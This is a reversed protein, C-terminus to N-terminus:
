SSQVDQHPTNEFYSSGLHEKARYMAQDASNILAAPSEAHLPYYSVGISVGIELSQEKFWIPEVLKAIIDEVKAPVAEFSELLDLCVVFEDGGLRAVIDSNRICLNLRKAIEGLVFDGADHGQSDNVQKFKDLDIFLLALKVGSRNAKIVANNLAKEFAFRNMLGTLPDHESMFQLKQKQQELQATKIKVQQELEERTVVSDRLSQTMQNFFKALSRFEKDMHSTKIQCTMDGAALKEIGNRLALSGSKFRSMIRWAIVTITLAIFLTLAATSLLNTQQLAASKGLLSQHIYFIEETMNQVLMNYRSHLLTQTKLSVPARNTINKTSELVSKEHQLLSALSQNMRFINNLQKAEGTFLHLTETLNRQARDVQELSDFDEYQLFVWLQSRILDIGLEIEMLSTLEQHVREQERATNWVSIVISAVMVMSATFLIVLKNSISNMM